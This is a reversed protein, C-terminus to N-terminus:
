DQYNMALEKHQWHVRQLLLRTHYGYGYVDCLLTSLHMRGAEGVRSLNHNYTSALVEPLCQIPVLTAM